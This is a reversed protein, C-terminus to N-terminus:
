ELSKPNNGSKMETLLHWYKKPMHGRQVKYNERQAIAVADFYRTWGSRILSERESFLPEGAKGSEDETGTGTEFSFGGAIRWPCGPSHLIATGRKRDHIAFSMDAYRTAFHGGILPLVDCDPEIPAYWSADALESFRVLGTILHAQFRARQAAKDVTGIDLDALDNLANRGERSMRCLARAVAEEKAPFDSCFAELCTRMATEGAKRSLREWLRTARAEDTRVPVTEDFLEQRPEPGRIAPFPSGSRLANIAEAAVCLFGPFSGDYTLVVQAARQRNGSDEKRVAPSM